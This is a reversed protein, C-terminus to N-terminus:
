CVLKQTEVRKKSLKIILTGLKEVIGESFLNDWSSAALINAYKDRTDKFAECELIFHKKTEVKGATCFICEKQGLKKQGKGTGPRM